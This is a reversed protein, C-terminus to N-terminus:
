FVLMWFSIVTFFDTSVRAARNLRAVALAMAAVVSRLTVPVMVGAAQVGVKLM